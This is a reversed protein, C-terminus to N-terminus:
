IYSQVEVPSACKVGAHNIQHSKFVVIASSTTCKVTKGEREELHGETLKKVGAVGCCLELGREEALHCVKM